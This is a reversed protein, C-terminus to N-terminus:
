KGGSHMMTRIYYRQLALFPLAAVLVSVSASAFLGGWNATEMNAHRAIAVQIMVKDPSSAAVIPWFFADWQQIFQMLAATAITPGSLPLVLRWYIQWWSAGDIRGAEYLERPVAAFFQSFLFISLGSAVEPLILAQYSDTWGLFRILTYLPMVISEFPMMFSALVLVFLTARGRFQFAAFGFGAMSNVFLAVVVTVVSVFVSNGIALPFDGRTLETYNELTLQSPILTHWSFRGGYRFIDSAPRISSILLWYLPLLALVAVALMAVYRLIRRRKM